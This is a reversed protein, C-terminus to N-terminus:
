SCEVPFLQNLVLFPQEPSRKLATSAMFSVQFLASPHTSLIPHAFISTGAVECMGTPRVGPMPWPSLGGCGLLNCSNPGGLGIPGSGCEWGGSSRSVDAGGGYVPGGGRVLHEGGGDGSGGSSAGRSGGM